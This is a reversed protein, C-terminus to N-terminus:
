DKVVQAPAITSARWAPVACAIIAVSVLGAGLGVFTAPDRAGVDILLSGLIRTTSLALAVGVALGAGTVIIGERLVGRLIDGSTAGLAMRIGIERHRQTVSYAIVGYLGIIALVLGVLGIGSAIAAALRVPTFALGYRLHAAMPMMAYPAVNADISDVVERVPGALQGPDGETLLHLTM